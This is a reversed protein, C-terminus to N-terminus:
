NKNSKKAFIIGIKGLRTENREGIDKEKRGM